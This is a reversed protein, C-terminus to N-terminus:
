INIENPFEYNSKNTNLVANVGNQQVDIALALFKGM